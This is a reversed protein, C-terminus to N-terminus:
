GLGLCTSDKGEADAIKDGADLASVDANPLASTFKSPQIYILNFNQTYTQGPVVCNEIAPRRVFGFM